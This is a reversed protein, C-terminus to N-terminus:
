TTVQDSVPPVPDPLPPHPPPAVTPAVPMLPEDPLPLVPPREPPTTM